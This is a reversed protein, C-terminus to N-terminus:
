PTGQATPLKKDIQSNMYVLENLIQKDTAAFGFRADIGQIVGQATQQPEFFGRETNKAIRAALSEKTIDIDSKIPTIFNGLSQGTEIWFDRAQKYQRILDKIVLIAETIGVVLGKAFDAIAQQTKPSELLKVFDDLPESLGDALSKGILITANNFQQGLKDLKFGTNDTFEGFAKETSGAANQINNLGQRAVGSSKGTLALLANLARVNPFLKSLASADNDVTEALKNLVEQLTNSKLIAQANATGFTTKLQEELEKSPKLLTSLAGRLATTAVDTKISQKTLASLAGLLEQTSVGAQSAIPAVQGLAQALEPVTTKGFEVAKFLQDSVDSAKSADMSYANLVGTLIDVATATDTAGAVALESAESLFTIANEPPVGASLADYLGKTLADKSQGFEASLNMVQKELEAFDKKGLKAITNVESMQKEFKAYERIALGGGVAAAAGIAVSAGIVQKTARKVGKVSKLFQKNDATFVAKLKNSTTAM